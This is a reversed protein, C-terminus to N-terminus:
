GPLTGDRAYHERARTEPREDRRATLRLGAGVLSPPAEDRLPRRLLGLRASLQLGDFLLAPPQLAFGSLLLAPLLPLRAGGLLQLQLRM